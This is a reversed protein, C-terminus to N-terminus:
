VVYRTMPLSVGAATKFASSEVAPPAPFQVAFGADPYPYVKWAQAVATVPALWAAMLMAVTAKM